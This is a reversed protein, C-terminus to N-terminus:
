WEYNAHVLRLTEATGLFSCKRGRTDWTIQARKTCVKFNENAGGFPDLDRPAMPFSFVNTKEVLLTVLDSTMIITAMKHPASKRM